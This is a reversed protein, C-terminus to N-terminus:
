GFDLHWGGSYHLRVHTNQHDTKGTSFREAGADIRRFGAISRLMGDTCLLKHISIVTGTIAGRDTQARAIEASGGMLFALTLFCALFRWIRKGHQLM